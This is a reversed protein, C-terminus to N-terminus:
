PYLFHGRRIKLFPTPEHLKASKESLIHLVEWGRNILVDSILSRHCRWPVAEACVIASPHKIAITELEEIGEWFPPTDMYDAFGRFSSNHWGTNKSEKSPHRLGGLKSLHHYHIKEKELSKSFDEANFQPNHRSKPITRIDVVQQIGYSKLLDIFAEIEKTSHGVTYILKKM